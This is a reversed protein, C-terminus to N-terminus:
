NWICTFVSYMSPNIQITVKCGAVILRQSLKSNTILPVGQINDILRFYCSNVKSWFIPLIFKGPICIVGVVKIKNLIIEYRIVVINVIDFTNCIYVFGVINNCCILDDGQGITIAFNKSKCASISIFFSWPELNNGVSITIEGETERHIVVSVHRNSNSSAIYFIYQIYNFFSSTCIVDVSYFITAIYESTIRSFPIVPGCDIFVIFVTSNEAISHSKRNSVYSAIRNSLFVHICFWSSTRINSLM